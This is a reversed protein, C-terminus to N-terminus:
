SVPCNDFPHSCYSIICEPGYFFGYDCDLGYECKTKNRTKQEVAAVDDKTNSWLYGDAIIIIKGGQKKTVGWEQLQQSTM